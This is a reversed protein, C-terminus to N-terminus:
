SGAALVLSFVHGPVPAGREDRGPPLVRRGDSLIAAPHVGQHVLALAVLHLLVRCQAQDLVSRTTIDLQTVGARGMGHMALDIVEAAAADPFATGDARVAYRVLAVDPQTTSPDIGAIPPVPKPPGGFRAVVINITAAVEGAGGGPLGVGDNGLHNTGYLPNAYGYASGFEEIRAGTAGDHLSPPPEAPATLRPVITGTRPAVISSELDFAGRGAAPTALTFPAQQAGAVDTMGLSMVALCISRTPLRFSTRGRCMTM